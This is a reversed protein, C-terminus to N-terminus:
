FCLSFIWQQSCKSNVAINGLWSYKSYNFSLISYKLFFHLFISIRGMEMNNITQIQVSVSFCLFMIHHLVNKSNAPWLKYQWFTLLGLDYLDSLISFINLPKPRIWAFHLSSLTLSHDPSANPSSPKRSFRKLRPLDSHFAGPAWWKNWTGPGFSAKSPGASVYSFCIPVNKRNRWHASVPDTVENQVM